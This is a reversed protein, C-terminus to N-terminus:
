LIKNIKSNRNKTKVSELDRGRIPIYLFIYIFGWIFLYILNVVANNSHTKKLTCNTVCLILVMMASYHFLLSLPGWYAYDWVEMICVFSTLAILRVSFMFFHNLFMFAYSIRKVTCGRFNQNSEQHSNMWLSHVWLFLALVLNISVLWISTDVSLVTTSDIELAKIAINFKLFTTFIWQIALTSCAYVIGIVAADTEDWCYFRYNIRSTGVSRFLRFGRWPVALLFIHALLASKVAKLKNYFTTEPRQSDVIHHALSLTTPVIPGIVRILLGIYFFQRLTKESYLRYLFYFDIFFSLLQFFSFCLVLFEFKSGFYRKASTTSSIRSHM